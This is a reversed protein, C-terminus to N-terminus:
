EIQCMNWYGKQCEAQCKKRIKKTCKQYEIHCIKRCEKKYQKTQRIKQSNKRGKKQCEIQCQKRWKRQCEKQRNVDPAAWESRSRGTSTRRQGSRNLASPVAWRIPSSPSSSSSFFSSPLLNKYFKVVMVQCATLLRTPSPAFFIFNLFFICSFSFSFSLSLSLFFFFFFHLPFLLLLISLFFLLLLFVFLFLFLFLFLLLSLIFFM